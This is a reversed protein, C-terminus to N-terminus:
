DAILHDSFDEEQIQQQQQNGYFLSLLVFGVVGWFPQFAISLIVLGLITTPIYQFKRRETFLLGIVAVAVLLNPLLVIMTESTNFLSNLLEIFSASFYGLLTTMLEGGIAIYLYKLHKNKM